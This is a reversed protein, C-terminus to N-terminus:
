AAKIQHKALFLDIRKANWNAGSSMYIRRQNLEDALEQYSLQDNLLAAIVPKAKDLATNTTKQNKM